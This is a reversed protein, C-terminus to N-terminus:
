RLSTSHNQGGSAQLFWVAVGVKFGGGLLCTVEIHKHNTKLEVVGCNASPPPLLFLPCPLLKVYLLVIECLQLSKLAM